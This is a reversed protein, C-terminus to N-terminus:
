QNNKSQNNKKSKKNTKKLIVIDNEKCFKLADERFALADKIYEDEDLYLAKIVLIRLMKLADLNYAKEPKIWSSNIGATAELASTLGVYRKIQQLFFVMLERERGEISRIKQKFFNM